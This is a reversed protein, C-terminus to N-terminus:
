SLSIPPARAQLSETQTLAISHVEPTIGFTYRVQEKISFVAPAGDIDDAQKVAASIICPHGDHSHETEGYAAIHATTFIQALLFFLAFLSALRTQKLGTLLSTQTTARDGM